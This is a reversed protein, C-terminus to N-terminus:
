NHMRPRDFLFTIARNCEIKSTHCSRHKVTLESYRWEGNEDLIWIEQSEEHIVKQGRENIVYPLKRMVADKLRKVRQTSTLSANAFIAAVGFHSVPM